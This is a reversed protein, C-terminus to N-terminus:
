SERVELISILEEINGRFHPIIEEDYYHETSYLKENLDENHRRFSSVLDMAANYTDEKSSLNASLDRVRKELHPVVGEIFHQETTTLKETLSATQKEWIEIKSQAEFFESEKLYLKNLKKECFRSSSTQLTDRRRM